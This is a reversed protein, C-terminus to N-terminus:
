PQDISAQEIVGVLKRWADCETDQPEGHLRLGRHRKQLCHCSPQSSSALHAREPEVKALWELELGVRARSLTAELALRSPDDPETARVAGQARIFEARRDGQEELWDAYVTRRMADDPDSLFRAFLEASLPHGAAARHNAGVGALGHM